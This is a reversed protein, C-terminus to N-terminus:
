TPYAFGISAYHFRLNSTPIVDPISVYVSYTYLSNDITSWGITTDVSSGFGASGSSTAVAMASLIYDDNDLRILYCNIDESADADDWYFTVNTVTVGHPLQVSGFFAVGTTGSNQLYHSIDADDYTSAFASAPVSIYGTPDFGIGPEGQIGQIGQIGQDGQEGQPGEPGVAGDEGDEGAPGTPGRPGTAGTAGAPGTAGTEGQDGQIGQPGQEGQPGEPGEPGTIVMSIGAAVASSALVAIVVIAIFQTMSAM